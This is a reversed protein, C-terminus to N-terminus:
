FQFSFGISSGTGTQDKRFECSADAFFQGYASIPAIWGLSLVAASKENSVGDLAFDSGPAGQFRANVKFDTDAMDNVYLARLEIRGSHDSVDTKYEYAIKAGIGVSFMNYSQSDIELGANKLEGTETLADLRARGATFNVLPQLIWSKEENLYIDYMIELSGAFSNGDSSAKATSYESKLLQNRHFDVSSFGGTILGTLTWADQRYRAFLDINYTNAENEAWGDKVTVETSTCAFSVGMMFSESMPVAYGIEGGWSTMKYGPSQFDSKVDRYHNIAGAWINYVGDDQWDDYLYPNILSIRNRVSDIHQTMDQVQASLASYYSSASSAMDGLYTQYETTTMKSVTQMTRLMKGSLTSTNDLVSAVLPAVAMDIAGKNTGKFSPDTNGQGGNKGSLQLNIENAKSTDVSVDVFAFENELVIQLNDAGVIGNQASFITYDTNTVWADNLVDVHLQTNGSFTITDAQRIYGTAGEEESIGLYFHTKEGFTVKHNQADIKGELAAGKGPSLLLDGTLKYEGPSTLIAKETTKEGLLILRGQKVDITVASNVNKNDYISLSGSGTKEFSGTGAIGNLFRVNAGGTNIVSHSGAKLTVTASSIWSSLSKLTGGNLLLTGTGTMGDQGIALIGDKEVSFIGDSLILQRVNATYGNSLRVTGSGSINLINTELIRTKKDTLGTSGDLHISGTANENHLTLIGTGEHTINGKLILNKQSVNSLINEGNRAYINGTIIQDNAGAQMLTAGGELRFENAYTFTNIGSLQNDGYAQLRIIARNEPHKPSAQAVVAGSGLAQVNLNGKGDGTLTQGADMSLDVMIMCGAVDTGLGYDNSNNSIAVYGTSHAASEGIDAYDMVQLSNNEGTLHGQYVLSGTGVGPTMKYITNEMDADLVYEVSSDIIVTQGEKAGLYVQTNDPEYRQLNKYVNAENQDILKGTTKIASVTISGNTGLLNSDISIYQKMNYQLTNFSLGNSFLQFVGNNGNQLFVLYSEDFYLYISDRDTSTISATHATVLTHNGQNRSNSEGLSFSIKEATFTGNVTFRATKEELLVKQAMVDGQASVTWSLDSPLPKVAKSGLYLQGAFNSAKGLNGAEAYYISTTNAATQEGLDLTSNKGVNIVKVRDLGTSTTGWLLKGEKISLSEIGSLDGEFALTGTGSKTLSGSASTTNGKISVDTNTVITNVSALCNLGGNLTLSGKKDSTGFTVLGSPTGETGLTVSQELSINGSNAALTSNEWLILRSGTGLSADNGLFLSGAEVVTDGEYANATELILTGTGAKNFGGQGLINDEFAFTIGEKVEITRKTTPDDLEGKDNKGFFFNGTYKSGDDFESPGTYSYSSNQSILLTGESFCIDTLLGEKKGGDTNASQDKLHIGGADLELTGNEIFIRGWAGNDEIGWIHAYGGNTMKFDGTEQGFGLVLKSHAMELFGGEDVLVCSRNSKNVSGNAGITMGSPTIGDEGAKKNIIVNGSITLQSARALNLYDNILLTGGKEVFAVEKPPDISKVGTDLSCPDFVEVTAGSKVILSRQINLLADQPLIELYSENEVVLFHNFDRYRLGAWVSVQTYDLKMKASSGDSRVTITKPTTKSNGLANTDFALTGGSLIINQTFTNARNEGVLALTGEGTKVLDGTGTGEIKSKLTITTDKASNVTLSGTGDSLEGLKEDTNESDLKLTLHAASSWSEYSGLNGKRLNISYVGTTTSESNLGKAGLILEGGNLNVAGEKDKAINGIANIGKAKVSGGNIQLVGRQKKRSLMIVDAAEIRGGEVTCFSDKMEDGNSGIWLSNPRDETNTEMDLLLLGKNMILHANWDLNLAKAKVTPSALGDKEGIILTVPTTKWVILLNPYEKNDIFTTDTTLEDFPVKPAEARVAPHIMTLSSLIALPLRLKM